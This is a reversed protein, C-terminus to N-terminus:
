NTKFGCPGSITFTGTEDYYTGAPIYCGMVVSTGAASTASAKITRAANTYVNTVDPCKNCGNMGNTSNGWYGVACRYKQSNDCITGCMVGYEHGPIGTSTWQKDRCGNSCSCLSVTINECKLTETPGVPVNSLTYNTACGTCSVATMRGVGPIDVCKKTSGTCYPGGGMTVDDSCGTTYSCTIAFSQVPLMICTIILINTIKM